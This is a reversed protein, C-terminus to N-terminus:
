VNTNTQWIIEFLSIKKSASVKKKVTRGVSRCVLDNNINGSNEACHEANILYMMLKIGSKNFSTLLLFLCYFVAIM